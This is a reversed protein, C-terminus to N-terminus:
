QLLFISAPLVLFRLLLLLIWSDEFWAGLRNPSVDGIPGGPSLEKTGFLKRQQVVGECKKM